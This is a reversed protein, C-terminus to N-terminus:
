KSGLVTDPICETLAQENCVQGQGKECRLVEETM